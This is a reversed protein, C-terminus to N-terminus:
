AGCVDYSGGSRIKSVCRASMESIEHRHKYLYRVVSALEETDYQRVFYGTIGDEIWEHLQPLEGVIPVLGCAMAELFSNPVGDFASFSIYADGCCLIEPIM